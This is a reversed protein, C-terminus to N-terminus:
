RRWTLSVGAYNQDESRQGNSVERQMFSLAAQINSAEISVGAQVDGVTVREQLRLGRADSAPAPTWTVAQGDAAAFLYWTPADWTPSAFPDLNLRQGLRVEGGEARLAGGPWSESRARRSIALGFDAPGRAAISVEVDLGEHLAPRAPGRWEGPAARLGVSFMGGQLSADTASLAAEPRPADYLSAPLALRLAETKLPPDSQAIAPAVVLFLSATCIVALKMAAM